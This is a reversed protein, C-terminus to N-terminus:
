FLSTEGVKKSIQNFTLLMIFNIVSNFLGVAASFSYSQDILGRRYVYTSIVDATEYTSSNYLLLIKESGQSFLNGIRLIFMIIITEKIGPLTIHFIKRWRGAGDMTAAEYLEPDIATLAALYVISNWGFSQWVGSGVYLPRFCKPDLLFSKAEAGLFGTLTNVIGNKSFFDTLMGCIVVTSIFHPLYTFTQTIRRFRNSRVEHLLVAFIIPLPFGWILDYLNILLTNRMLRWFYDGQFFSVFHKLGVWQSGWIGKGPSYNEFAISVGYMPGYHFILFFALVPLMMFYIYKNMVFDRRMEQYWAGFSFRKLKGLHKM